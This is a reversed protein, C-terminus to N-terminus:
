AALVAARIEPRVMQHTFVPYGLTKEVAEQFVDFPMCLLPQQMQFKAREKHDMSEWQKTQAFEVAQEKTLLM